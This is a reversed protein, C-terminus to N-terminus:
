VRVRVEISSETLIIHLVIQQDAMKASGIRITNRESSFFSFFHLWNVFHCFVLQDNRYSTPIPHHLSLSFFVFESVVFM